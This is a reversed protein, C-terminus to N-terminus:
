NSNAWHRKGVISFRRSLNDLNKQVLRAAASSFFVGDIMESSSNRIVLHLTPYNVLKGDEHLESKTIRLREVRFAFLLM